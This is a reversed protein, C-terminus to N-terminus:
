TKCMNVVHMIFQQSAFNEIAFESRLMVGICTMVAEAFTTDEYSKSHKRSEILVRMLINAGKVRDMLSLNITNLCFTELLWCYKEIVHTSYAKDDWRQAKAIYDILQICLPHTHKHKRFDTKHAWKAKIQNAMLRVTSTSYFKCQFSVNALTIWDNKLDTAISM